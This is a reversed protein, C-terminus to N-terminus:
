PTPLLSQSPTFLPTFLPQPLTFSSSRSLCVFRIGAEIERLEIEPLKMDIDRGKIGTGERETAHGCLRVEVVDAAEVRARDVAGALGCFVHRQLLARM